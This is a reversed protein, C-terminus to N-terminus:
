CDQNLSTKILNKENSIVKQKILGSNMIICSDVQIKAYYTTDVPCSFVYYGSEKVKLYTLNSNLTSHSETFDGGDGTQNAILDYSIISDNKKYKVILYVFQSYESYGYVTFGEVNINKINIPNLYFLKEFNFQKKM